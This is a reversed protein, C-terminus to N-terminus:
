YSVSPIDWPFLDHAGWRGGNRGVSTTARPTLICDGYTEAKDLTSRDVVLAGAVRWLIGVSPAAAVASNNPTVAVSEYAKAMTPALNPVALTLKLGKTNGKLRVALGADCELKRTM